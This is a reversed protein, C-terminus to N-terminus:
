FKFGFPLCGPNTIEIRNDFIAIQISAGKVSYDAHLLANIVAERIVVPPYQPINKRRIEDIEAAESTHRRIFAILPELAISIPVKLIQQDIIQSKDNGLFRGM